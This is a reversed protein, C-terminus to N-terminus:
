LLGGVGFLPLVRQLIAALCILVFLIKLVTRRSCFQDILYINSASACALLKTIGDFIIHFDFTDELGISCASYPKETVVPDNWSFDGIRCQLLGVIDVSCSEISAGRKMDSGFGDEFVSLQVPKKDTVSHYGALRGKNQLVIFIIAGDRLM